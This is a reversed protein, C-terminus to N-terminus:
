ACKKFSDKVEKNVIKNQNKNNLKQSGLVVASKNVLTYNERVTELNKAMKM